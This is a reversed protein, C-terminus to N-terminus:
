SLIQNLKEERIDSLLKFRGSIHSNKLGDDGIITYWTARSGWFSVEEIIYVKGVTLGGLSYKGYDADMCIVKEGKM